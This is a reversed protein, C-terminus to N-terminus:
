LQQLVNFDPRTPYELGQLAPMLRRDENSYAPILWYKKDMGFVQFSFLFNVTNGVMHKGRM